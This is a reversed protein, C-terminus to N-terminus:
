TFGKEVSLEISELRVPSDEYNILNFARRRASGLRYLQSRKNKMELPRFKNWTQYDDDSYRLYSTGITKDGILELRSYFKLLNNGGDVNTTQFSYKIPNDNDLYTNTNLAYIAGTTSDQVLDFAQSKSYSSMNFYSEEYKLITGLVTATGPNTPLSFTAVNNTVSVVYKGNYASPVMNQLIIIDGDELVSPDYQLTVVGNAWSASLVGIPNKNLTLQTWETWEGRKVDCVLTIKSSPLTLVYFGHGQISIYYSVVNKLNDANLIRDIFPTSIQRPV